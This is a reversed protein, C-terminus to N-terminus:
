NILKVVNLNEPHVIDCFKAKVTTINPSHTLHKNLIINIQLIYKPIHLRSIKIYKSLRLYIYIHKNNFYLSYKSINIRINLGKNIYVIM